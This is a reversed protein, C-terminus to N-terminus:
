DPNAPGTMIWGMAEPTARGTQWRWLDVFLARAVAVIARKRGRKHAHENCLVHKWRQILKSQPQYYVWRWAAEILMARLSRNGAKTIPLDQHYDGSASVGGTLGTYSGPAKRNKFRKFDAVERLIEELGLAGLGRPRARPATKKIKAVLLRVAADIQEILGRWLGLIEILWQPLEKRLRDWQDPKWWKTSCQWGQALLLSSGQCAMAHRAKRLQRRQRSEARLQEQEPTPVYVERLARKNGRVYRDLDMALERSDTKDNQVRRNERDLKRPTVVINKVGLAVLQRHLVFGGAGAEYCSYVVRGRTLQKKVWALFAAPCFRQAPQPGSNDIIRTVRFERAHWDTGLKICDYLPQQKSGTTSDKQRHPKM